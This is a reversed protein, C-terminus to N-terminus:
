YCISRKQDRGTDQQSLLWVGKGWSDGRHGPGSGRSRLGLVGGEKGLAALTSQLQALERNALTDPGSLEGLSPACTLQSASLGSVSNWSDRRGQFDPGLSSCIHSPM